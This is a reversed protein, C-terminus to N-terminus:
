CSNDVALRIAVRQSRLEFAEANATDGQRRYILSLLKIAELSNPNLYVAKKLMKIAPKLNDMEVFIQGMLLFIEVSPDHNKLYKESLSIAEDYKEEQAVVQIAALDPDMLRPIEQTPINFKSNNVEPSNLPSSVQTQRPKKTLAFAKPYPLPIFTTEAFAGPEAHGTFIVGDPSLLKDLIDIAQKKRQKDLYILINRCFIIDYKTGPVLPRLDLLNGQIFRVSHRARKAISYGAKTKKFYRKQLIQNSGRFSSKGFVGRKAFDLARNSIDIADISFLNQDIDADLLSIAMSYPEEGTSCPISLLRLSAGLGRKLWNQAFKQLAKFPTIDRFFWTENIAIEDILENFESNPRSVLAYYDQINKIGLARMRRSIANKLTSSGLARLNLGMANKLRDALIKNANM